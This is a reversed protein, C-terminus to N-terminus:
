RTYHPEALLGPPRAAFLGPRPPLETSRGGGPNDEPAPTQPPRAGSRVRAPPPASIDPAPLPLNGLGCRLPLLLCPQDYAPAPEAGGAAPTDGSHQFTWCFSLGSNLLGGFCPMQM